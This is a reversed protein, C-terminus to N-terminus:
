KAAGLTHELFGAVLGDPELLAAGRGLLFFRNLGRLLHGVLLDLVFDEGDVAEDLLKRLLILELFNKELLGRLAARLELLLVGEVAGDLSNGLLLQRLVPDLLAEVEEQGFDSALHFVRRNQALMYVLVHLLDVLVDHEAEVANNEVALLEAFLFEGDVALDFKELGAGRVFKLDGFMVLVGLHPFNGHLLEGFNLLGECGFSLSGTYRVRELDYGGAEVEESRPGFLFL